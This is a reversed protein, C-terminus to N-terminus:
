FDLRLSKRSVTLVCSNSLAGHSLLTFWQVNLIIDLEEVTSAWKVVNGKDKPNSYGGAIAESSRFKSPATKEVTEIKCSGAETIFLDPMTPKFDAWIHELEQEHPSNHVRNAVVDM